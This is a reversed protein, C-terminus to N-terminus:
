YCSRVDLDLGTGLPVEFAGYITIDEKAKLM